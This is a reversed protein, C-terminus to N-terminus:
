QLGQLSYKEVMFGPILTKHFNIIYFVLLTKSIISNICPQYVTSLHNVCPQYVTSLRNICPQYITSLRNISLTSLRNISLTSLHNISPQYVNICPQYVTSPTLEIEQILNQHSVVADSHVRTHKSWSHRPM